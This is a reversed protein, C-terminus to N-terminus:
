IGTQGPGDSIVTNSTHMSVLPVTLCLHMPDSINIYKDNERGTWRKKSKSCNNRYLLMRSSLDFCLLMDNHLDSCFDMQILRSSCGM